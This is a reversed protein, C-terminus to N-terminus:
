AMSDCWGCPWVELDLSHLVGHLDQSNGTAQRFHALSKRLTASAKKGQLYTTQWSQRLGPIQLPGQELSPGPQDDKVVLSRWTLPTGLCSPFVSGQSLCRCLAPEWSHRPDHGWKM